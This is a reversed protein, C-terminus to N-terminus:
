TRMGGGNGEVADKPGPQTEVTRPPRSGRLFRFGCARLMLCPITMFLVQASTVGAYWQWSFLLSAYRAALVYVVGGTPAVFILAAARLFAPSSGLCAWLVTLAVIAAGCGGAINIAFVITGLNILRSGRMVAFLLAVAATFVLIDLISFRLAKNSGPKGTWRGWRRCVGPRVRMFSRRASRRGPMGDASRADRAVPLDPISGLRFVSQLVLGDRRSRGGAGFGTSDLAPGGLRGPDLFTGSAGRLARVFDDSEPEASYASARVGLAVQADRGSHALLGGSDRRSGLEPPVTRPGNAHPESPKKESRVSLLSKKLSIM